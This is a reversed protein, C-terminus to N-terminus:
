EHIFAHTYTPIHTHTYSHIHTHPYTYTHIYTPTYTHIHTHTYIYVHICICMYICTYIHPNRYLLRHVCRSAVVLGCSLWLLGAKAGPGGQPTPPLPTTISNLAVRGCVYAYVDTNFVCM